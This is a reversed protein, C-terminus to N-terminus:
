VCQGKDASKVHQCLVTALCAFAGGEEPSYKLNESSQVLHINLKIVFPWIGLKQLASPLPVDDLAFAFLVLM